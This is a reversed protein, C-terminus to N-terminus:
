GPPQHVVVRQHASEIGAQEGAGREIDDLALGVGGAATTPRGVHDDGRM